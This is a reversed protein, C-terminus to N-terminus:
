GSNNKGRALVWLISVAALGIVTLVLMATPLVTASFVDILQGTIPSMLAAGSLSAVLGFTTAFRLGPLAQNLWALGATFPAAVGVGALVYAVIRLSPVHALVLALTELLFGALLLQGASFRLALPAMLIRGLTQAGWYFGTINAAGQKSFGEALLQTALWTGLTNEVGGSAFLCLLFLSLILPSSGGSSRTKQESALSTPARPTFLALVVLSLSLTAGVLMPTRFSGPLSGVLVPGLFSGAGYAANVLSLMATSRVGFGTAFLGNVETFLVGAGVGRLTAALLFLSWIPTLALLWSSLAIVATAVIFRARLSLKRQLVTALLTGIFTGVFHASVILGAQAETLSFVLRLEPLSPGYMAVLAAVVIFSVFGILTILPPLGQRPSSVISHLTRRALPLM